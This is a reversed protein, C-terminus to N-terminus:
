EAVNIENAPNETGKYIERKLANSRFSGSVKLKRIAEHM